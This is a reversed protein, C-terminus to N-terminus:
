PFCTLGMKQGAAVVKQLETHTRSVQTQIWDSTIEASFEVQVQKNKARSFRVLQFTCPDTGLLRGHALADRIEVLSEDLFEGPGRAKLVANCKRIVIKLTDYNTLATENVWDGVQHQHFAAQGPPAPQNAGQCEHLFLRALLELTLLNTLIEGFGRPIEGTIDM